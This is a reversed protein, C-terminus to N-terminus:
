VTDISYFTFRKGWFCLLTQVYQSPFPRAQSNDQLLVAWTGYSTTTTCDLAKKCEGRRPCVSLGCRRAQKRGPPTMHSPSALLIHAVHCNHSRSCCPQSCIHRRSEREGDAPQVAKTSRSSPPAVLHCSGPDKFSQRSCLDRRCSVEWCGGLRSHATNHTICLGNNRAM